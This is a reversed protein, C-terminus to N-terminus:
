NNHDLKEIWIIVSSKSRNMGVKYTYNEWGSYSGNGDTKKYGAYYLARRFNSDITLTNHQTLNVIEFTVQIDFKNKRNQYSTQAFTEKVLVKRHLRPVTYSKTLKEGENKIILQSGNARKAKFGSLTLRVTKEFEEFLKEAEAPYLRVKKPRGQANALATNTLVILAILIIKKMM